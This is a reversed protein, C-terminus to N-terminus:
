RMAMYYVTANASATAGTRTWALTFGDTDLSAITASQSKGASETLTIVTSTAGFVSTGAVSVDVCYALTGDGFGACVAATAVSGLFIIHSPKFGVGTYAVSTPAGTADMARVLTGLKILTYPFIRIYDYTKSTYGTKTLIIKFQQDSSYDGDDVYFSFVGDTGSTVSNVATVIVATTYVSAATTTGALYVAATGSAVINGAGDRFTGTYLYRAM